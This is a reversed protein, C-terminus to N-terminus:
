GQGALDDADLIHGFGDFVRFHIGPFVADGVGRKKCSIHFVDQLSFENCFVSLGVDDHEVRGAGADVRGHRIDQQGTRRLAHDIDAAIRGGLRAVEGYEGVAVVDNM